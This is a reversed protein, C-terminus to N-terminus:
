IEIRPAKTGNKKRLTRGATAAGTKVNRQSRQSPIETNAQSRNRQGLLHARGAGRHGNLIIDYSTLSM